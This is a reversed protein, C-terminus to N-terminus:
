ERPIRIRVISKISYIPIRTETIGAVDVVVVYDTGVEIVRHGLRVNAILTIEYRGANERLTVSQGEELASLFGRRPGVQGHGTPTVSGLAFVVALLLVSVTRNM